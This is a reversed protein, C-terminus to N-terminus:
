PDPCTPCSAPRGSTINRRPHQTHHATWGATGTLKHPLQRNATRPRGPIRRPSYSNHDLFRRPQLFPAMKQRRDSVLCSPFTLQAPAYPTKLVAILANSYGMPNSQPHYVTNPQVSLIHVPLVFRQIWGAFLASACDAATSRYRRQCAPQGTSSQSYIDSALLISCPALGRPHTDFAMLSQHSNLSCHLQELLHRYVKGKQCSLCSRAVAAIKRGM